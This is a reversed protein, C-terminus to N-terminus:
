KLAIKEHVPVEFFKPYSVKFIMEIEMRIALLLMPMIFTQYIKKRAYKIDLDKQLTAISIFLQKMHYTDLPLKSLHGFVSWYSLHSILGIMKSIHVEQIERLATV